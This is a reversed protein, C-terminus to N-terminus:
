LTAIVGIEIVVVTNAESGTEATLPGGPNRINVEILTATLTGIGEGTVLLGNLWCARPTAVAAKGTLAETNM